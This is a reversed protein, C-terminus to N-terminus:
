RGADFRVDIVDPIGPFRAQGRLVRDYRKDGLLHRAFFAGAYAQTIRRQQAESLEDQDPQPLPADQFQAQCTGPRSGPVSDDEAMVQGGAPSWQRNYFNHVGGTVTFKHLPVTNAGENQEVYTGGNTVDCTGWMVAFPTKTVTVPDWTQAPALAFAARISVGQPWSARNSDDIEQMVAGGGMSHGILGVDGLDVHGRFDVASVRGSAADTFRGKLPGGGTLALQRWMVLHREILAARAQYVTDAQGASTANIGNTGISVVVFGRRALDRGLYDYGRHSPIRDTGPACPWAWLAAVAAEIIAQQKEADATDGAEEDRALAEQAAALDRAADADACTAHIGHEIVILPHRGHALDAPVYVAGNLENDGVYGLSRPPRFAEDGLDYLVESVGPRGHDPGPHRDEAGATGPVALLALVGALTTLTARASRTKM